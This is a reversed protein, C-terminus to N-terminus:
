KEGKAKGYTLFRRSGPKTTTFQRIAADIGPLMSDPANDRVINLVAQWDTKSSPKGQRWTCRWDDAVMETAEGLEAKIKAECDAQIRKWHAQRTRAIGLDFAYGSLDDPAAVSEGDDSPWLKALTPNDTGVVEPIVDGEVHATWWGDLKAAIDWCTKDVIPVTHLQYKNGAILVPVHVFTIPKVFKKSFCWAYHHCQIIYEQPVEDTGAEGWDASQGRWHSTTKAEVLNRVIDTQVDVVLGDIHAFLRSGVPRITDFFRAYDDTAPKTGGDPYFYSVVGDRDRGVLVNPYALDQAYRRLVESELRTGWEAAESDVPDTPRGTASLWVDLATKYPHLGLVAAADSGGLGTRALEARKESFTQTM